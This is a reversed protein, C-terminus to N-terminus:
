KRFLFIATTQPKKWLDVVKKLQEGNDRYASDIAASGMRFHLPFVSIREQACMGEMFFITFALLILVGKLKM